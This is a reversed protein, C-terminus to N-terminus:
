SCKSKFERKNNINTVTAQVDEVKSDVEWYKMRDKAWM